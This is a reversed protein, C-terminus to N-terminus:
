EKAHLQGIKGAGNISSVTKKGNSSKEQQDFLLQGFLWPDMRPERNHEMPRYTQKEALVMSDKHSILSDMGNVIAGFVM